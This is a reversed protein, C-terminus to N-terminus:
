LAREVSNAFIKKLADTYQVACKATESRAGLKFLYRFVTIILKVLFAEVVILKLGIQKLRSYHKRFFYNASIYNQCYNRTRKELTRHVTDSGIHIITAQPNYMIKYGAQRTRYSFDTEERCMWFNEDLLGIKEIVSKRIMFFAGLVDDVEKVQESLSFCEFAPFYKSLFAGIVEGIKTKRLPKLWDNAHFFEKFLSPYSFKSSQLRGDPYVLKCAGIGCAPNEDMFRVMKKLANDLIVTDDNLLLVYRGHALKIAKNNARAFGLNEGNKLLTVASFESKVMEATKDDTSNDSVFIEMSISQRESCVSELCKRLVEKNDMTVIVISLDVMMNM